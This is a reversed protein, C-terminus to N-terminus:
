KNANIQFYISHAGPTFTPVRLSINSNQEETIYDNINGINFVSNLKVIDNNIYKKTPQPIIDTTFLSNINSPSFANIYDNRINKMNTIYTCEKPRSAFNDCDKSIVFYNENTKLQNKYLKIKENATTIPQNAVNHVEGKIDEISIENSVKGYGTNSLGATFRELSTPNVFNNIQRTTYTFTYTYNLSKYLKNIIFVNAYIKLAVPNTTSNNVYTYKPNDSCLKTKVL